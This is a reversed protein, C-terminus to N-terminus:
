ATVGPPPPFFAALSAVSGALPPRREKWFTGSGLVTLFRRWRSRRVSRNSASLLRRMPRPAVGMRSNSFGVARHVVKASRSPLSNSRIAARGGADPGPSYTGLGLTRAHKQHPQGLGVPAPGRTLMDYGAGYASPINRCARVSQCTPPCRYPWPACPRPPGIASRRLTARQRLPGPALYAQGRPPARGPTELRLPNSPSDPPAAGAVPSLPETRM